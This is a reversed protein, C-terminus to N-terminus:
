KGTRCPVHIIYTRLTSKLKKLVLGKLIVTYICFASAITIQFCQPIELIETCKVSTDQYALFSAWFAYSGALHPTLFHFIFM